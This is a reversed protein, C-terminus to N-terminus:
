LLKLPSSFCASLFVLVGVGVVVIGVISGGRFAMELAGIEGSPQSAAFTTKGNVQTAVYMGVWGALSSCLAGVIFSFGSAFGLTIMLLVTVALVFAGLWTYQKKLFALAGKHIISSLEIINQNGVKFEKIKRYEKWAYFLALAGALVVLLLLLLFKM